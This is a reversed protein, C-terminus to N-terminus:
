FCFGKGEVYVLVPDPHEQLFRLWLTSSEELDCHQLFSRRRLREVSFAVVGLIAAVNIQALVMEVMFGSAKDDLLKWYILSSGTYLITSALWHRDVFVVMYYAISIGTVYM